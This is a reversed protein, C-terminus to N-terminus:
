IQLGLNLTIKLERRNRKGKALSINSVDNMHLIEVSTIAVTIFSVIVM